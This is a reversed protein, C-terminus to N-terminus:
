GADLSDSSVLGRVLAEFNPAVVTIKYDLEQDVYVVPPERRASANRYDLCLMEHGASPTDAFYVGIAPYGWEDIMFQSGLTGCLSYPKTSGIAYIGSIAIHDNAWSTPSSMRHVRHAPIGGNQFKMFEVYSVPLRFGLADEVARLLAASVSTDVYNEDAYASKSWFSSFDLDNFVTLNESRPAGVRTRQTQSVNDKLKSPAPGEGNRIGLVTRPSKTLQLPKNALRNGIARVKTPWLM